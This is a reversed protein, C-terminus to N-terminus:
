RTSSGGGSAITGCTTVYGATTTRNSAAHVSAPTSGANGRADGSPLSLYPPRPPTKGEGASTRIMLTLLARLEAPYLTQRRLLLDCTRITGPTGAM